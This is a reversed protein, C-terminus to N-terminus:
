LKLDLVPGYVTLFGVISNARQFFKPYSEIFELKSLM